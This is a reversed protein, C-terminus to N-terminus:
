YFGRNRWRLKKYFQTALFLLLAGFLVIESGTLVYSDLDNALVTEKTSSSEPAPIALPQRAINGSNEKAPSPIDHVAPPQATSTSPASDHTAPPPKTSTSPTEGDMSPVESKAEQNDSPQTQASAAKLLRFELTSTVSAYAQCNRGVLPARGTLVIRQDNDLIAGKVQFPIPGCRPNFIYATGSYQGDKAQGQFLLSGPQAGAESMGPRPKEYHFERSSGDSVLYMVSGNHGWITREPSAAPTQAYGSTKLFLIPLIAFLTAYKPM